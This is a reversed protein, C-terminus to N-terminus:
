RVSTEVPKLTVSVNDFAVYMFAPPNISYQHDHDSFWLRVAIHGTKTEIPFDTISKTIWNGKSEMSWTTKRCLTPPAPHEEDIIYSTIMEDAYVVFIAGAPGGDHKPFFLNESVCDWSANLLYKGPNVKIIQQIWPYGERWSGTKAWGASYGEKARVKTALAIRRFHRDGYLPDEYIEYVSMPAKNSFIQCPVGQPGDFMNTTEPTGETWGTLDGTEFDGNVLLNGFSVGVLLSTLTIAFVITLIMKMEHKM